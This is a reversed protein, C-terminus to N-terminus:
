LLIFVCTHVTACKCCKYLLFALFSGTQQAFTFQFPETLGKYFTKIKLM